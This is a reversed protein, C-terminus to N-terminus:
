NGDLDGGKAYDWLSDVTGRLQRPYDALRMPLRWGHGPRLVASLEPKRPWRAEDLDDWAQHLPIAERRVRLAVAARSLRRGLRRRALSSFEARRVLTVVEALESPVSPEARGRPARERKVRGALSLSLFLLATVVLAWVVAQDLSDLFWWGRVLLNLGAGM